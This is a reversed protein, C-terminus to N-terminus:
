DLNVACGDTLDDIVLSFIQTHHTQLSQGSDQASNAYYQGARQYSYEGTGNASRVNM